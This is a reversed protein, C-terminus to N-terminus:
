GEYKVFESFIYLVIGNVMHLQNIQFPLCVSLPVILSPLRLYQDFTEPSVEPEDKIASFSIAIPETEEKIHVAEGVIKIPIVDNSHESSQV